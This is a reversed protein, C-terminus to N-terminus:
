GVPSLMVAIWAIFVADAVAIVAADRGSSFCTASFVELFVYQLVLLPIVLAIVPSLVGFGVGVVLALLLIVRGVGGLLAARRASGRRLMAEFAAFFPLALAALLIWLGFRDITPVLRHFVLGAPALIVFMAVGAATGPLWASRLPLWEGDGLWTTVRGGIAGRRAFHRLTWLLAAALAADIIVPEGAGLPLISLGGTALLPMTVVLAGAILLLAGPPAGPSPRREVGGAVARGVVLGLLAILAAAVLLYLATTGLRPDDMGVPHSRSMGVVPDLFSTIARLTKGSWLITVHDTGSIEVSQVHAETGLERALERQRHKISGPDRAAHLFLVDAPVHADNLASGGSVPVVAIPRSDFTAFDLAAFAGMSHGLVVLRSADVYPSTEAWDVATAFDDRLDGKFADTNDGHGRFDFTLVAYGARALSRALPSMIQQDASYGHAVVVVPPRQGIPRPLPFQGDDNRGPVYLTAPLGTGISMDLHPPGGRQEAGLRVLLLGATLLVVVILAATVTTTTLRPRQETQVM